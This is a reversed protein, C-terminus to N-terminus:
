FTLMGAMKSASSALSCLCKSLPSCLLKQVLLGASPDSVACALAQAAALQVDHDTFDSDLESFLTSMFGAAHM